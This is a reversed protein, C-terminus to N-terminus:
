QAEEKNGEENGAATKEEEIVWRKIIPKPEFKKLSEEDEYIHATGVSKRMGFVNRMKRVVVYKTGYKESLAKIVETRKPSASDYSLEFKVEKRKTLKNDNEGLVNINM